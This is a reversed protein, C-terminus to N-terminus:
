DRDDIASFVRGCDEFRHADLEGGQDV